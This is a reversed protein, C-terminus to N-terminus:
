RSPVLRKLEGTWNLVVRMEPTNSMDPLAGTPTVRAVFKGDPTIDYARRQEPPTLQFPRPVPSSNGFAFTPATTVSVVELGQPRPNYFLERGDPSWVPHCPTDLGKAVLQYKAGTAPFPQVYITQKGREASGYAIWRGDPSFAAGIPTSSRIDAVPTTTRDALTFMWLEADSGKEVSFLLKEGRPSWSEPVHAMGNVPTTLREATGTGDVLQWFIALDGARDSQFAVHASDASWVPFRNNGGFTLRRMPGIGSLDYIWVIAEAGDDTGFAIRKGDPSVRPMQYANAPLSLRQVGASRDILGLQMTEGLGSSAQAPGAIYVLSGTESVSFHAAGTHSGTARSVGEVVPMATGTVQLRRVDFPVAYLVGSLAYVIHGTALYRADSGGEIITTRVGSTVSQAVISARDWRDTATGTALTFLVHDGDPLLQPAHAQENAKVHVIVKAAGGTQSVQLIGKSGQGFLLGEREWSIGYTADAPALMVASGGTVSITRLAGDTYFAISRGDPSFVPETVRAYGDTGPIVTAHADAMARVYLGAPVGPYVIQTGDPSIAISHRGIGRSFVQGAPLSIAFRTVAGPPSAKLYSASGAAIATVLVGALGAVLQRSIGRQSRPRSFEGASVATGTDAAVLGDLAIRAEGIDRLRQKVERDLCRAILTRVALPTWEPLANWNVDRSTVAAVIDSTRDGAFAPQGSLMEYLVVGFAWIDSRKDADRGKVQEPSMYAATGMLADTLTNAHDPNGPDSALVRALGFDLIKVTGDPRLVINAPKLDRHVIGQEHAAELAEAIQRAVPLADDSSLPGDAIRDALTRGDVFELAIAAVDSSAEFGYVAAINPHNLSALVQAERTFLASRDRDLAFVSPLVKLAVHRQLHVDRARYVDGMGGSGLWTEVQYPGIRRGVLDSQAVLAAAVDLAPWELFASARPECALLSEVDLRLAEDGACARTILEARADGEIDLAQVYIQEAQRWRDRNGGSADSM